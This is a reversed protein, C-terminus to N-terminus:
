FSMRDEYAVSDGREVFRKLLRLYMAWCFSTDTFHGNVEKWGKHYFELRTEGNLETLIFGVRTEYWDEDAEQFQLEFIENATFKTVLATWLYDPEFFLHYIGGKETIGSTSKAWWKDMGHPTALAEFVREASAQIAFSFRIESM